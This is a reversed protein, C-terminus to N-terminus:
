NNFVHHNPFYSHFFKEIQIKERDTLLSENAISDVVRDDFNQMDCKIRENKKIRLILTVKSNPSVLQQTYFLHMLMTFINTIAVEGLEYNLEAKAHYKSELTIRIIDDYIENERITLEFKLVLFNRHKLEGSDKTIM